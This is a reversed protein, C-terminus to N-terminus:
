TTVRLYTLFSSFFMQPNGVIFRLLGVTFSAPAVISAGSAIIMCLKGGIKTVGHISRISRTASGHIIQQISNPILGVNNHMTILEGSMPNTPGAEPPGTPAIIFGKAVTHINKIGAKKAHFIPPVFFIKSFLRSKMNAPANASAMLATTM